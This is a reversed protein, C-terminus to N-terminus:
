RVSVYVCAGEWGMHVFILTRKRLTGHGEEKGQQTSQRCRAEQQEETLRKAKACSIGAENDSNADAVQVALPVAVATGFSVLGM